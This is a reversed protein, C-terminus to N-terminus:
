GHVSVGTPAVHKLSASHQVPKQWSSPSPAYQWAFGFVCGTHTPVPANQVSSECQQLPSQM